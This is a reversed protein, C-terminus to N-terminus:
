KRKVGKKFGEKYKEGAEKGIKGAFQLLGPLGGSGQVEIITRAVLEFMGSASIGISEAIAKWQEWVDADVNVNVVKKNSEKEM